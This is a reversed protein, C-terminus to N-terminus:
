FPDVCSQTFPHQTENSRTKKFGKKLYSVFCASKTAGWTKQTNQYM